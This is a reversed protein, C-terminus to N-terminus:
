SSLLGLWTLTGLLGVLAKSLLLRGTILMMPISGIQGRAATEGLYRFERSLGDLNTLVEFITIPGLVFDILIEQLM